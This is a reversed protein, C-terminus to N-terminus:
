LSLAVGCCVCVLPRNGKKIERKDFISCQLRYIYYFTVGWIRFSGIRRRRGGKKPNYETVWKYFYIDFPLRDSSSFFFWM